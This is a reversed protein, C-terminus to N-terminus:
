YRCVIRTCNLVSGLVRTFVSFLMDVGVSNYSSHYFPFLKKNIKERVTETKNTDLKANPKGVNYFKLDM